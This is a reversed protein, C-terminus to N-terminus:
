RAVSDIQRSANVENGNRDITKWYMVKVRSSGLVISRPWNPCHYNPATCQVLVGNIMMKKGVAFRLTKGSPTKVAFGGADAGVGYDVLVGLVTHTRANAPIYPFDAAARVASPMQTALAASLM